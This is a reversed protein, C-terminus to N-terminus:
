RDKGASTDSFKPFTELIAKPGLKKLATELDLAIKATAVDIADHRARLCNFQADNFLASIEDDPGESNILSLAEVLRRGAYRLEKISPFVVKQNVQEALKIAEEASDWEALISVIREGYREWVAM